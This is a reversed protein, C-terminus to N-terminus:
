SLYGAAAVLVAGRGVARPLSLRHAEENGVRKPRLPLRLQLAVAGDCQLGRGSVVNRDGIIWPQDHIIRRDPALPRHEGRHELAM